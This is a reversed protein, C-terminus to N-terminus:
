LKIKGIIDNLEYIDKKYSNYIWEKDFINLKNKSFYDDIVISYFKNKNKKTKEIKNTLSNPLSNMQFDSIILLDSKKYKEGEMLKLAYNLAPAVDTGGNFSKQLFNILQKVNMGNSLEITEISSSFNILFCDRKQKMARSAIFLTIAKAINEPTGSMSGSTDICLIFPGLKEKEEKSITSYSEIPYKNEQLGEMDFCILKSELLKLDFLMSIDDDGLLALEQPIASYIENSLKVGSIEDKSNIDPIYETEYTIEKIKEQKSFSNARRLRGLLDTLKKLKPTNLIDIYKKITEIDKTSLNENALGGLFEEDISLKKLLEDLKQMSNLWEEIKSLFKQKEKQIQNNEWKQYENNLNREWKDLLMKRLIKKDNVKIKEKKPNKLQKIEKQWFKDDIHFNSIEQLQKFNIFDQKINEIEFINQNFEKKATKLKEQNEFFPNELDIKRSLSKEWKKTDEKFQTKIKEKELIKYKKTLKDVESSDLYRM